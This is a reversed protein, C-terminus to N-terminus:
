VTFRSRRSDDHNTFTIKDTVDLLAKWKKGISMKPAGPPSGVGVGSAAGGMAASKILEIMARSSSGIALCATGLLYATAEKVGVWRRGSAVM